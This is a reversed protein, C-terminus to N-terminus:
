VHARGIEEADRDGWIGVLIRDPTDVAVGSVEGWGWTDDHDPAPKWWGPVADYAGTREDGGKAAMAGDAARDMPVGEGSYCAAILGTIALLLLRAPHKM